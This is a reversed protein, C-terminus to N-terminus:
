DSNYSHVRITIGCARSEM